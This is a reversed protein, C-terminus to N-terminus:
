GARRAVSPGFSLVRPQLRGAPSGALAVRLPRRLARRWAALVLAVTTEVESAFIKTCSEQAVGRRRGLERRQIAEVIMRGADPAFLYDRITDLPVYILVPERLAARGVHAILGQPKSLKQGPGYLNSLRGILLDVSHRDALQKLLQEQASNEHGDPVLRGSLARQIATPVRERRLRWGGVILLVADWDECPVSLGGLLRGSGRLLVAACHNGGFTGQCVHRDGRSRRVLDIAM